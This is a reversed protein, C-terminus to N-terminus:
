YKNSQISCKFFKLRYKMPSPKIPQLKSFEHSLILKGQNCVKGMAFHRLADSLLDIRHSPTMEKTIHAFKRLYSWLREMGEGDTLGYDKRWRTSYAVQFPCINVKVPAILTGQISLIGFHAFCSITQHTVKVM